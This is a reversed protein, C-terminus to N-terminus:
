KEVIYESAFKISTLTGGSYPVHTNEVFECPPLLGNLLYKTNVEDSGEGVANFSLCASSQGTNTLSNVSSFEAPLFM